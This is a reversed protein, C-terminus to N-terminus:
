DGKENQYKGNGGDERGGWSGGTSGWVYSKGTQHATKFFIRSWCASRWWPGGGKGGGDKRVIGGEGGMVKQAKEFPLEFYLICYQQDM